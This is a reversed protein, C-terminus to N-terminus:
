SYLIPELEREQGREAFVCCTRGAKRWDVSFQKRDTDLILRFHSLLLQGRRYSLDLQHLNNVLRKYHKSHLGSPLTETQPKCTYIELVPVRIKLSCTPTPSNQYIKTPEWYLFLAQTSM